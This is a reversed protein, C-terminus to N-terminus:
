AARAAFYRVAAEGLARTGAYAVGGKVAWGALPVVGLAQRAAARFALGSGIVGMIEPLRDNDVQVGHAAAIRLVLRLQNLTLVPFDAGPIFIAAGLIGNRRSASAILASCVAARLAPVRAALSTGEEGLRRALVQAIEEVPFASGPAVVVVDTALVYPVRPDLGPGALVAAVPVGAKEAEKLTRRDEETPAAALVHVLAAADRSFGDRVAAPAAGEALDRALAAALAPAGTVCLPGEAGAGTKLERLLRLIVGPRIPLAM